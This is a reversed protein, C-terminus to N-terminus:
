TGYQRVLDGAVDRLKRNEHQSQQVLRRFAEDPGCGVTRMLIGKAQEIAARSTMAARLQEALDRHGQLTSAVQTALSAHGAIIQAVSVAEGDFADATRSYVNLAGITKAEVTMPISLMSRAGSELARPTYSPWRTENTFDRVRFLVGTRAGDLCPGEHETYQMEDLQEAWDSSSAVAEPGSANFTMLSAGDANQVARTTIRCIEQLADALDDCALAVGALALLEDAVDDPLDV